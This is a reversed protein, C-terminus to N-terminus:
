SNTRVFVLQGHKPAVKDVRLLLHIGSDMSSPFSMKHELGLEYLYIAYQHKEADVCGLVLGAFEKHPQNAVLRAIYEYTWYQQSERQLKRIVGILGIKEMYNIDADIEYKHVQRVLRGDQICEAPLGIDMETISGPITYGNGDALDDAQPNSQVHKHMEQLIARRRIYRKVAAHVQLDSFRRIPSTWQVYSSLGLGAHPRKEEMVRVSQFFRRTYWAHCLGHGVNYEMLTTM